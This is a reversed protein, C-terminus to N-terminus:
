TGQAPPPTLEAESDDTAYMIAEIAEHLAEGTPLAPTGEPRTAAAANSEITEVIADIAADVDQGAVFLLSAFSQGGARADRVEAPDRGTREAVVNVIAQGMGVFPRAGSAAVPAEGDILANVATRLAARPDFGGGAGGGFGGGGAGASGARGGASGGGGFGGGGADAGGAQGGPGGAFGSLIQDVAQDVIAERDVGEAEIIEALTMGSEQLAQVEEVSKEAAEAVAAGVADALGAGGFRGGFPGAGGPRAGPAGAAPAGAARTPQVTPTASPSAASVREPPATAREIGASAAGATPTATDSSEGSEGCATLMVGALAATAAVAALGRLLGRRLNVGIELM